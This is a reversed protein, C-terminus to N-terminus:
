AVTAMLHGGKQVRDPYKFHTQIAIDPHLSPKIPCAGTARELKVRDVPSFAAPLNFTLHIAGIRVVPRDTMTIDVDVVTGSIDLDNQMAAMGMTFLMCSALGSGVLEGPSLEEGKGGGAACADAAVTKGKVDQVVKCHQTGDYIARLNNM